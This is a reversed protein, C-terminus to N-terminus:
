YQSTNILPYESYGSILDHARLALRVRNSVGFKKFLHNVHVKITQETVFLKRAIEKNSFGECLYSLVKKGKATLVTNKRAAPELHLSKKLTQNDLWLDGAHVAKIASGLTQPDSDSPLIGAFGKAVMEQLDRHAALFCSSNHILLIKTQQKRAGGGFLADGICPDALVIDPSSLLLENLEEINRAIGIVAIKPDEELLKRVGEAFLRIYCYVVLKITMASHEELIELHPLSESFIGGGRPPPMEDGKIQLM